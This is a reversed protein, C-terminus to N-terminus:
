RKTRPITNSESEIIIQQVASGRSRVITAKDSATERCKQQLTEPNETCSCTIIENSVASLVSRYRELHLSGDLQSVVDTRSCEIHLIAGMDGRTSLSSGRRQQYRLV